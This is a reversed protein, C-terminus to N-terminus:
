SRVGSTNEADKIQQLEEILANDNSEFSLEKLLLQIFPMLDATRVKDPEERIKRAFLRLSDYAIARLDPMGEEADEQAAKKASPTENMALKLCKKHRSILYRDPVETDQQLLFNRIEGYQKKAKLLENIDEVLPHADLKCAM